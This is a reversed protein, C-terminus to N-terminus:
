KDSRQSILKSEVMDQRNELERIQNKIDQQQAKIAETQVVNTNLAVEIRTLGRVIFYAGGGLSTIISLVVGYTLGKIHRNLINEQLTM